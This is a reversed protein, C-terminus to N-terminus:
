IKYVFTYTNLLITQRVSLVDVVELIHKISTYKDCGLIVRLARNQNKQIRNIESNNLLFLITSCFNLHPLIIPKYIILKTWVNLDKGIRGLFNVKKAIKNSIYLAHNSFSLRDDISVGLYKIESVQEIKSNGIIVNQHHRTDMLNYKSKIIMVKTKDLNLKLSNNNLWSELVKLEENLIEIISNVNDRLVYILTDDAFLQIKCKKFAKVIDNIYLIFLNPGM